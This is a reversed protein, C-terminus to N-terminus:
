DTDAPPLVLVSVKAKRLLTTAVSGLVAHAIANRRHRGVAVFDAQSAIAFNFLVDAADGDRREIEVTITPNAAALAMRLGELAATVGRAYPVDVGNGSAAVADLEPLAHLLTLTGDGVLMRAAAAAARMSARSFDIGVVARRPLQTVTPTVAFVPCETARTVRLATEDGVLRDMLSHVRLGTVILDFQGTSATEVISRVPSGESRQVDVPPQGAFCREVQHGVRAFFEERLAADGSMTTMAALSPDASPVPMPAPEFVALVNVRSKGRRSLEACLGAAGDASASGDTALLLHGDLLREPHRQKVTTTTIDHMDAIVSM